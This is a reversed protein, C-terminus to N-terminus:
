SFRLQLDRFPETACITEAWALAQTIEAAHRERSLQLQHQRKERGHEVHPLKASRGLQEESALARCEAPTAPRGLFECVRGVTGAPDDLLTEFRLRMVRGGSHPDDEARALDRVQLLWNMATLQPDSYEDSSAPQGPLLKTFQGVRFERAYLRSEQRIHARLMTALYTELDVYLLVARERGTHSMLAPILNGAQSTPKVLATQDERWTKALTLLALDKIAEWRDRSIPFGPRDLARFSRSLGMLLPPERLALFADRQGLIRSLLTSGCHGTHLIYDIRRREPALIEIWELLDDLDAVVDRETARVIRNDLFSSQRYCAENMPSFIAIGRVPDLDRLFMAPSTLLAALRGRKDTANQSPERTM